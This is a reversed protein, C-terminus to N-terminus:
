VRAAEFCVVYAVIGHKSLGSLLERLYNLYEEDYVGRFRKLKACLRCSLAKCGVM